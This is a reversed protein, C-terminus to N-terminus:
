YLIVMTAGFGYERFSADQYKLTPYDRDLCHRIEYRLRGNGKGHIFIIKKVQKEMGSELEERFKKKQIDLMENQSLGSEDDVLEHIHLDVEKAPHKVQRTAQKKENVAFEKQIIAEDIADQSVDSLIDNGGNVMLPIINAKEEFFDNDIFLKGAVSEMLKLDVICSAPEHYTFERKKYFVFQVLIEPTDILEKETTTTLLIKTHEELLGSQIYNCGKGESKYGAFFLIRYDCDNILYIDINNGKESDPVVALYVFIEDNETDSDGAPNQEEAPDTESFNQSQENRKDRNVPEEKVGEDVHEYFSSDPEDKETKHELILESPLVPVDFGEEIRVYIKGERTVNSIVGGGTDKLFKVKDGVNYQM